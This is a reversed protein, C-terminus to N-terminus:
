CGRRTEPLGLTDEGERQEMCPRQTLREGGQYGTEKWDAEGLKAEGQVAQFAGAGPWKNVGKQTLSGWSTLVLARVQAQM